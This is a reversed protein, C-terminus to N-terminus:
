EMEFDMVMGDFTCNECWMSSTNNWTMDDSGIDHTPDELVEGESSVKASVEIFGSIHLDKTDGCQPCSYM